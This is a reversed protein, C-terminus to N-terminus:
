RLGSSHAWLKGDQSGEWRRSGALSQGLPNSQFAVFTDASGLTRVIPYNTSPGGRINIRRSGGGPPTVAFYRPTTRKASGTYRVVVKPLAYLGAYAHDPTRDRLEYDATPYAPRLMGAFKRILDWPYWDPSTARGLLGDAAPDYGLVTSPVLVGRSNKHWGAGYALHIDHNVRGTTSRHVTGVFAGADGQLNIGRFLRLQGALYDFSAVRTGTHLEIPVGSAKAVAAAQPLTTGGTTDKPYIQRRVSCGSPRQVGLTAQDMGMAVGYCTCSLWGLCKGDIVCHCAPGQHQVTPHFPGILTM